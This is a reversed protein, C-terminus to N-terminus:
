KVSSIVSPDPSVACNRKGFASNPIKRSAINLLSALPSIDPATDSIVGADHYQIGWPYAM